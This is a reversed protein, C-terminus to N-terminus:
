STSALRALREKEEWARERRAEVIKLCCKHYKRGEGMWDNGGNSAFARGNKRQKGISVLPKKCLHCLPKPTKSKTKSKSDSSKSKPM